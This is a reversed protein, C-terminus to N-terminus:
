YPPLHTCTKNGSHCPDPRQLRVLPWVVLQQHEREDALGTDEHQITLLYLLGLHSAEIGVLLGEIAAVDSVVLNHLYPGDDDKNTAPALAQPIARSIKHIWQMKKYNKKCKVDVFVRMLQLHISAAMLQHFGTLLFSLQLFIEHM